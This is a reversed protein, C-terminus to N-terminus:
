YYIRKRESKKALASRNKLYNTDKPLAVGAKEEYLKESIEFDIGSEFLFDLNDLQPKKGM